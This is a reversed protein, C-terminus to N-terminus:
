EFVISTRGRKQERLDSECVYDGKRGELVSERFVRCECSSTESKEYTTKLRFIILDIHNELEDFGLSNSFPRPILLILKVIPLSFFFELQSIRRKLVECFRNLDM